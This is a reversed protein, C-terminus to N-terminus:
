YAPILKAHPYAALLIQQCNQEALARAQACWQCLGVGHGAGHGDYFTVSDPNTDSNIKCFSSPLTTGPQADTNVAERMQEAAWNFQV